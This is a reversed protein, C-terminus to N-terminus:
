PIVHQFVFPVSTHSQKADALHVATMKTELMVMPKIMKCRTCAKGKRAAMRQERTGLDMEFRPPSWHCAQVDTVGLRRM